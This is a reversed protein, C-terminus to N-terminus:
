RVIFDRIVVMAREPADPLVGHGVEPFREFRVLHAPLAAPGPVKMNLAGPATWPPM